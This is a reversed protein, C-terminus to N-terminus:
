RCLADFLEEEDTLHAMESHEDDDDDFDDNIDMDTDDMENNEMQEVSIMEDDQDIPGINM